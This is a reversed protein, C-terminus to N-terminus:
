APAKRGAELRSVLERVEDDSKGAVRAHIVADIEDEPWVSPTTPGSSLRIPATLVGRKIHDRITNPSRLGMRAQLERRPVLRVPKASEM